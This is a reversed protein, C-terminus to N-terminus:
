ANFFTSRNLLKAFLSNSNTKKQERKYGMTSMNTGNIKVDMDYFFIDRKEFERLSQVCEDFDIKLYEFVVQNMAEIFASFGILKETQNELVYMKWFGHKKEMRLSCYAGSSRIGYCTREYKFYGLLCNDLHKVVSLSIPYIHQYPSIKLVYREFSHNM